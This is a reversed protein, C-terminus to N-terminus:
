IPAPTWFHLALAIVIGIGIVPHRRNLTTITPVRGTTIAAVEYACLGAVVAKTLPTEPITPRLM